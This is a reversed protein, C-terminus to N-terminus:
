DITYSINDVFLLAGYAPLLIEDGAPLLAAVKEIEDIQSAIETAASSEQQIKQSANYKLRSCSVTREKDSRNLMLLVTNTDVEEGFVDRGAILCRAFVFLDDEALLPCYYGTRLVPLKRLELLQRFDDTIETEPSQWPFSARNFPDSYGEMAREDGYYISIAGPYCIQFLLALKLLKEGRRREAPSLKIESQEQRGPPEKRGALATIARITDHSSILNLNAYFAPLPYNERIKELSNLMEEASLSGRLFGLLAKRFPYGMINHHTRGFLFDRYSGHSFQNSADEWVEGMIVAEPNELAVRKRITRIFSDPLEDSVDLRWGSVGADLWKQLIGKPGAIFEQFGLDHENVNPLEPFGWWSDYKIEQGEMRINYGSSWVSYVGDKAAQVAGPEPYRGYLNFYRSDAGTHSFVGDLVLRIGLERAEECLLKLDEESGLMPDILEYDGTDYRHNSRAKFIPNLYIGEVGLDKLYSLKERIGNLSGGYFDCALYGTEEKGTFNLPETWNEHCIREPLACLRAMKEPDFNEGRAFRDPFIQYFVTGMLWKPVYLDKEFVTIQWMQQFPQKEEPPLPETPLIETKDKSADYVAWKTGEETEIQFCYFFLAAEAPMGLSIEYWFSAKNIGENKESRFVELMSVKTSFFSYLGYHYCLLVRQIKAEAAEIRIRIRVKTGTAVAGYPQRFIELRSKHEIIM